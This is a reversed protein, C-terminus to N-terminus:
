AQAGAAFANVRKTLRSVTRSTTKKHLTGKVAVRDIVPIAARLAEQAKEVSQEEIASFIAKIATKMKSKNTRNRLNRVESQRTRKMASKHNAM